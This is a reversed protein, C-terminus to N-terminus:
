FCPQRQEEMTCMQIGPSKRLLWFHTCVLLFVRVVYEDEEDVYKLLMEASAWNGRKMTKVPAVNGRVTASAMTRRLTKSSLVGTFDCSRFADGFPTPLKAKRAQKNAVVALARLRRTVHVADGWAHVAYPQGAVEFWLRGTRGSTREEERTM